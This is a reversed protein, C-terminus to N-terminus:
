SRAQSALFRAVEERTPLSPQAGIKTTTLAAVANAYDVAEELSHGKSAAVALAATFADGAATTDVAKVRYAPFHQAGNRQVLLAGDKGLTVVVAGVGQGLLREGAMKVTDMDTVEMGTLLAAETENPTIVDVKRLLDLPLSRAPAPNLFIPVGNEKALDIAYEVTELPSELQTILAKASAIMPAAQEVDARSLQMNAGSAVAIINDGREDVLIFAVGSPYAADRAILPTEVGAEQLNALLQDGFLDLGVRAVFFCRAGLRAAAVAQNAGKGGAAMHFEGGLVTEGVRPLKPIKVILDMNSSGVVVLHGSNSM